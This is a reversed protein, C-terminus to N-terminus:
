VRHGFLTTWIREFRGAKSPTVGGPLYFKEDITSDRPTAHIRQAM